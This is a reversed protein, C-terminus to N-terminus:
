ICNKSSDIDNKREGTVRKDLNSIIGIMIHIKGNQNTFKIANGM